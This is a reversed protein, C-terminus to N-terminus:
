HPRCIALFGEKKRVSVIGFQRFSLDGSARVKLTAIVNYRRPRPHQNLFETASFEQGSSICFQTCFIASPKLLRDHLTSDRAGTIQEYEAFWKPHAKSKALTSVLRTLCSDPECYFDKAAQENKPVPVSDKNKGSTGLLVNLEALPFSM